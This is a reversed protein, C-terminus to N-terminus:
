KQIASSDSPIPRLVNPDIRSGSSRHPAWRKCAPAGGGRSRCKLVTSSSVSAWRRIRSALLQALAAVCLLVISARVWAAGSASFSCREHGDAPNRPMVPMKPLCVLAAAPLICATVRSLVTPRPLARRGACCQGTM